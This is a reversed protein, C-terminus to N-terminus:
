EPDTSEAADRKSAHSEQMKLNGQRKAAAILLLEEIRAAREEESLPEYPKTGSPDTLATKDVLLGHRRALTFLADQVSYLELKPGQPTMTFSRVLYGRRKLMKTDVVLQPPIGREREEDSQPLEIMFDGISARAEEGIRKLVEDPGMAEDRIRKALTAAIKPSRLLGPGEDNPYKYGAERAAVTANWTELYVEVFKRQKPTLKIPEEQEDM